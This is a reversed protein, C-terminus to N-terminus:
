STSFSYQPYSTIALVRFVYIWILPLFFSLQHIQRLYGNSSALIPACDFSRPSGSNYGSGFRSIGIRGLSGSTIASLSPFCSLIWNSIWCSPMSASTKASSINFTEGAQFSTGSRIISVLVASHDWFCSYFPLSIFYSTPPPFPLPFVIDSWLFTIM